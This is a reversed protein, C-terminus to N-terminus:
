RYVREGFLATGIRVINAGEEVAIDFDDSMGMSLYLMNSNDINKDRIDIFLQKMQAFYKRVENKDPCIPPIAMLGKVSVGEIQAIRRVADEIEGALFGSKSDEEGINVELLIDTVRGSKVSLQGICEALKVSHVSEIMDVKDIIMKVKNTQLHGIFHRTVGNLCLDDYKSLYEQVRNEGIYKIGNQLAYNIVDPHVTKTAALLIIEDTSRGSKEAASKLRPLIDAINRDFYECKQKFVDASLKEKM